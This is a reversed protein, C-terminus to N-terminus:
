LENLVSKISNELEKKLAIRQKNIENMLNIYSQLLEEPDAHSDEVSHPNKIDLNYNRNKIEELSVKWAYENEERNDWWSKEL